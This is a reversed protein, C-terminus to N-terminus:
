KQPFTNHEEGEHHIEAVNMCATAELLIVERLCGWWEAESKSGPPRSRHGRRRPRRPGVRPEPGGQLEEPAEGEQGGEGGGGGEVAPVGRLTMLVM